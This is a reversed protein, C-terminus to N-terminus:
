MMRELENICNSYATRIDNAAPTNEDVYLYKIHKKCIEEFNSIIQKKLKRDGLKHRNYEEAQYKEFAELIEDFKDNVEEVSKWDRRTKLEYVIEPITSM